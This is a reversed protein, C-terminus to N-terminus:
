FLSFTLSKFLINFLLNPFFLITLLFYLTIGLILTKSLNLTHHSQEAGFPNLKYNIISSLTHFNNDYFYMWVILRLYYFSGIVSIVIAIIAVWVLTTDIVAELIWYKSLFGVLPPIGAMSFLNFLFTLSLTPNIKSLDSLQSIYITKPPLSLLLTFTNFSTILYIILYWFTSVFGSILGTSLGLLIFGIHSIASYAVLRKIKTQNIAGLTGIAISLLASLILFPQTWNLWYIFPGMLLQYLLGVITLKPLTALYTTVILPSGEYVDPAWMHFPVAAIKFLLAILIFLISMKVGNNGAFLDTSISDVSLMSYNFYHLIGEFSTSGTLWYIYTSGLLLLGSAVAGLLFYKIGAETSFQSDRKLSALIYFSLSVLEISLYLSILDKSSILLLMGITSLLILIIYEYNGEKNELIGFGSYSLTLIIFCSLLLFLKILIIIPDLGFLSNNTIWVISNEVSGEPSSNFIEKFLHLELIFTYFLTLNTLVLIKKLQSIHGEKKSFIVGYGLLFVTIITLYFEPWFWAYNEFM